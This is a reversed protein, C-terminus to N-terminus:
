RIQALPITLTFITEQEDSKTLEFTGFQSGIFKKCVSLGIGWGDKKTTYGQEFIKEQADSDIMEGHNILAIKIKDDVGCAGITNSRDVKCSNPCLNCIM